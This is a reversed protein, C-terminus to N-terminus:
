ANDRQFPDTRDSSKNDPAHSDIMTETAQRWVKKQRKEELAISAEAEADESSDEETSNGDFDSDVVDPEESM